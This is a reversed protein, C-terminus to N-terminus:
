NVTTSVIAPIVPASILTVSAAPPETLLYANVSNFTEYSRTSGVNRAHVVVQYSGPALDATMLTWTATASYDQVTHLAGGPAKLLFKYQYSGSGGSAVATFTIPTGVIAPSAPAPTLTVSAAPPITLLYSNISNFTEYSKTSGVNRAYVVVQYSGPALGTTPWTWTATASYDQVTHLTGGPAKLLFKYQYSGSGGSAVATFTIPTGVIAPSAPAPTLTVSAAPPITLLYSNISNFTEYSKTSGVNRAYVVVQYSGPALGTTPWTWTTSASYDQVTQLTSGPARLLFKYQYSGSGGSAVATFTVPAGITSSNGAPSSTLTVANAPPSTLGFNISRFTEYSATSGVNRAHVVVQYTGPLDTTSWVWTAAESYDQVTQLEGVPARLLFKYQYRGSGGSAEATFIIQTGITAPNVSSPTLTVASASFRIRLLNIDDVLYLTRTSADETINTLSTFGTSLSQLSLTDKNIVFLTNASIGYINGSASPIIKVLPTGTIERLVEGTDKDLSMITHKSTLLYLKGQISAVSLIEGNSQEPIIDYLVRNNVLDWRVLRADELLPTTGTGGHVSTGLYAVSSDLEDFALSQITHKPVIDRVTNVSGDGPRYCTLAGGYQGYDPQTGILISNSRKDTIMIRPRNQGNGIEFLLFQVADSFDFNQPDRLAESPFGWIRAQEYNATYLVDNLVCMNKPEGYIFRYADMKTETDLLRLQTEGIYAKNNNVTFSHVYSPTAELGKETLNCDNVLKGEFDFEVYHANRTVGAIIKQDVIHSGGLIEPPPGPILRVLSNTMKNYEFLLGYFGNFHFTNESFTPNTLGPQKIADEILTQFQNTSPDYVAIRNSPTFSLFIRNDAVALHYVFSDDQYEEPLIETKEGTSLDYEVLQAKAGIGAFLKGQCVELSRVYKESSFAGLNSLVQTSLNLAFVRATPYTGAYIAGEYLKMTWVYEDGEFLAVRRLTQSLINYEYIAAPQYTGIYINKGNQLVSWAGKADVIPVVLDVTNEAVNFRFLRCYRGSRTVGYYVKDGDDNNTFFGAYTAVSKIAPGFNELKFNDQANGIHPIAFLLLTIFALLTLFRGYKYSSLIM